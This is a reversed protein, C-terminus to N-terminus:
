DLTRARHCFPSDVEATRPEPLRPDKGFETVTVTSGLAATVFGKRGQYMGSLIEVYDGLVVHKRLNVWPVSVDGEGNLLAVEAEHQRLRTIRGVTNTPSVLVLENEEFKFELPCPFQAALIEPHKSEQFMAFVEAPMHLVGQSISHLDFSQRVLGNEMRLSGYNYAENALKAPQIHVDKPVQFPNFLRPPPRHSARKRKSSQPCENGYVIRPVLLVTVGQWDELSSVYALDGKYKGRSILVWEGVVPTAESDTMTLLAEWDEQSVGDYRLSRSERQIGPIRKLLNVLSPNMTAELYIYGRISGRTFASRLGYNPSAALQLLCLVVDQELGQQIYGDICGYVPCSVYGAPFVGFRIIV